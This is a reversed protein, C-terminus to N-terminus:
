SIKIRPLCTEGNLQKRGWVSARQALERSRKSDSEGPFASKGSKHHIM